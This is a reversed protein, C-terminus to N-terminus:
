EAPPASVLDSRRRDRRSACRQMVTTAGVSAVQLSSAGHNERLGHVRHAPLVEEVMARPHREPLLERCGGLNNQERVMLVDPILRLREVTVRSAHEHM